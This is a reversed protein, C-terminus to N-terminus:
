RGLKARVSGLLQEVEEVHMLRSCLVFLTALLGGGVALAAASGLWSQGVMRNVYLAVIFTAGAAVASAGILRVYTQMIRKGDLGRLRRKLKQVTIALGLCYAIGYVSCMAVVAWREEGGGKLAFFVATSLVVNALSIWINITFPSKTDEFAYFGRLMLFQASFPILGLGFASLMYGIIHANDMSMGGHKFLVVAIQPGLVLFAFAAPVIAVGTVRLGYSIDERVSALDNKVAARSMRPLLATIVSVTILAQPLGWIMYANNYAAVGWHEFGDNGVDSAYRMVVALGIQNVLVFLLTWKALTVAKGLGHGRWDFRLTLNMGASKIYPLLTLAQVAIGLTVGLGLLRVDAAPITSPTLDNKQNIYWYAGTSGIVVVNTLVPTWMMPGFRGKANLIQGLVVFLGLFFIQPMFMRGLSIALQRNSGSFSSFLDVLQPTFLETFITLTLVGTLVLTLLRSAYASGGDRDRHMSRVLQPVFVANLAGGIILIYLMNPLNLGITYSNAVDATGIAAVLLFQRVLGTLRSALTGLAMLRSARGVSPEAPAQPRVETATRDRVGQEWPAGERTGPGTGAPGGPGRTAPGQVRGRRPPILAELNSPNARRPAVTMTPIPSLDWRTASVADEYDDRWDREHDDEDEPAGYQEREPQPPQPPQWSPPQDGGRGPVEDRFLARSDDVPRRGHGADGDTGPGQPPPAPQWSDAQVRRPDGGHSPAGGFQDPRGPAPRPDPQRGHSPAAYQQPNRPDPHAGRGPAGPNPYQDAGRPPPQSGQRPDGTYPGRAARYPDQPGAYQERHSPEPGGPQPPRAPDPRPQHPQPPPPTQPAPPRGQGARPDPPLPRGTQPDFRPEAQPTWPQQPAPGPAPSHHPDSGQPGGPGPQPARRPRQDDDDRPPDPHWLGSGDSTM